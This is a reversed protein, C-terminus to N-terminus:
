NFSMADTYGFDHTEDSVRWPCHIVASLPGVPQGEPAHELRGNDALWRLFALKALDLKTQLATDYKSVAAMMQKRERSPGRM